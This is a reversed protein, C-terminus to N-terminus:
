SFVSYIAIGEQLEEEPAVRLELWGELPMADLPLRDRWLGVRLRLSSQAGCRLQALPLKFTFNRRLVVAIEHEHCDAAGPSAADPAPERLRWNTLERKAVAAELTLAYPGAVGPESPALHPPVCELNVRLQFEEEPLTAFDVRGYLNSEDIGAYLRELLFQKGHM